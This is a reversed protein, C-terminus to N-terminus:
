PRAGLSLSVVGEVLPTVVPAAASQTDNKSSNNSTEVAASQTAKASKKM